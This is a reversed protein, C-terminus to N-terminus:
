DIELYVSVIEGTAKLETVEIYAGLWDGVYLNWEPHSPWPEAVVDERFHRISAVHQARYDHVLEEMPRAWETEVLDMAGVHALVADAVLARTAALDGPAPSRPEFYDLPRATAADLGGVMADHLAADRAAASLYWEGVMRELRSEVVQQAVYLFEEVRDAGVLGVGDARWAPTALLVEADHLTAGFAVDDVFVGIQGTCQRVEVAEGCAALDISGNPMGSLCALTEAECTLPPWVAEVDGATLGLKKIAAGLRMRKTVTGTPLDVDVVLDTTTGMISLADDQLLDLEFSKGDPLIRAGSLALDGIRARIETAAATTGTTHGKIRYVTRGGYVIPTLEATVYLKSSGTFSALRPRVIARATLHDPRSASPVFGLQVFQQVGDTLGRSSSIPFAVEFTRASRISFEGFVDDYIFGRGDTLNRSTRGRMILAPGQETDRRVLLRNMWLSTDGARLYLETADDTKGDEGAEVEDTDLEGSVACAPAILLATLALCALRRM